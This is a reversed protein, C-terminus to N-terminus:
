GYRKHFRWVGLLFFAASWALQVLLIPAIEFPTQGAMAALMGRVAWGQPVLLGVTDSIRAAGPANMAFIRIMGLMGTVTLAGGFIVGGQRTSKLMSNIFIGFTAATLIIGVAGIATSIPNGWDIGFLLRAAFILTVVQALVTLFVALFKGTLIAARSTPTTFLRPLTRAEDEQLISQATSVGTYYAYFIMMGAMIPGVIALVPNVPKAGAPARVDLFEASLDSAQARSAALYQQMARGALVAGDTQGSATAQEAADMVQDAAIKVGAINDMFRGLVARLIGPGITLAPDVYLEVAAEGNPDAFQKSFDSPIIVAADSQRADVLMRASDADPAHSVDLLDALDRSALVADVLEGITGAHIDSPLSRRGAQLRPGGHDLNAIVVRIRPLEFSENEVASGFM